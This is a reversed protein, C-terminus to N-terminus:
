TSRRAFVLRPASSGIVYVSRNPGTAIKQEFIPKLGGQDRLYISFWDRHKGDLLYPARSAKTRINDLLVAIFRKTEEYTDPNHNCITWNKSRLWSYKNVLCITMLHKINSKLWQSGDQDKISKPGNGYFGILACTPALDIDEYLSYHKNCIIERLYTFDSETKLLANMTLNSKVEIVALVSEVPFVGLSQRLIFPPILRKDYIIIDTQKSQLGSQNIIIGSGIGFQESLFLNLIDSVFLERLEGKTLNHDLKSLSDIKQVLGSIISSAYRQIITREM